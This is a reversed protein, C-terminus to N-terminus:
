PKGGNRERLKAEHLEMFELPTLGKKHAEYQVSARDADTLGVWQREILNQENVRLATAESRADALQQTLQEIATRLANRDADKKSKVQSITERSHRGKLRNVVHWEVCSVAYEEALALIKETKTM